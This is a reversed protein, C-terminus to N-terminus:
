NGDIEVRFAGLELKSRAGQKKKDKKIM